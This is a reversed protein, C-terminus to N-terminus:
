VNAFKGYLERSIQNVLTTLRGIETKALALLELKAERRTAYGYHDEGCRCRWLNGIGNQLLTIEIFPACDKTIKHKSITLDLRDYRYITTPKRMNNEGV